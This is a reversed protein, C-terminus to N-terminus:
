GRRRTCQACGEIYTLMYGFSGGFHDKAERTTKILQELDAAFRERMQRTEPNLGGEDKAGGRRKVTLHITDGDRLGQEDFPFWKALLTHVQTRVHSAAEVEWKVASM